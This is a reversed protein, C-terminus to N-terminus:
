IRSVWGRRGERDAERGDRARLENPGEKNRVQQSGREGRFDVRENIVLMKNRRSSLHNQSWRKYEESIKSRRM